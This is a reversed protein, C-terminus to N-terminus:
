GKRNELADVNSCIGYVMERPDAIRGVVFASPLEADLNEPDSAHFVMRLHTENAIM